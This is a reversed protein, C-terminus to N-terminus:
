PKGPPRDEVPQRGIAQSRPRLPGAAHHSASGRNRYPHLPRWLEARHAGRSTAMVASVRSAGPIGPSSLIHMKVLGLGCRHDTATTTARPERPVEPGMHQSLLVVV